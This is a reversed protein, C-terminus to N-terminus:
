PLGFCLINPGVALAIFQQDGVKYTMPSTKNEGNTAFHWLKQGNRQDVAVVDGSPDGYILIGGATALVGAERKGDPPGVQPVEWAVRGTEIDLARLFKKGPGEPPREKWNGASLKVDCKEFAMLYYFHTLPSFATANWNTGTDPCVIGNEPVLQPRGDPGISSAWTAHVFKSAHLLQGNTRDLVYFFGNKDAHLLLKRDQGQYTTDVLVLPATSDWDHIDHPTVQYHWKLAGTDPNLALICNTYLNDGPRSRDDSDPYPNGTPWYLTDTEPDYSGTLWTSGGGDMRPDGGWSEAGPEGKGPITWFRWLREGTSAKYAAILGRVGWDGGSIGAIVADKVVLPAVTSGYHMPEDPMVAEWVLRGTTRNLAILHADSTVMFIKDGLIAAGRNTGLAADGVLGAPRPRSYEWITLGTGADLAFARHPATIYMIGDAVLPTVELGFYQMNEAFYPTNPLFQKWLPAAFVWKLRLNGANATNIQDLDSYRNGSLRGNYTLWDGPQPQLIRSFPIGEAGAGERAVAAGPKTGALGALYAILNQTEGASAKLPPMLSRKEERMSAVETEPVMHFQGDLDQVVTEFGNQSRAFGRLTKGDRLQVTILAYGAAIRAEPRTLSQRIEDVSLEQGVSSLDPGVAKGRGAVMHCSACQGAGFFLQGGAKRDGPVSSEVAPSNLSHVLSALADLQDDPLNFGPMGSSPIGNRILTRLSAISRGRVGSNGALAPGQETGLADPGHCGACQIAFIGAGQKATPSRLLGNQARLLAPCLLVVLYLEALLRLGCVCGAGAGRTTRSLM